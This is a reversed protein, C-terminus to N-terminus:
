FYPFAIIKISSISAIAEALSSKICSADRLISEVNSLFISENSLVVSTNSIHAVLLFYSKSGAISDLISM